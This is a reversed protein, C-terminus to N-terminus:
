PETGDAVRLYRVKRNRVRDLGTFENRSQFQLEFTAFPVTPASPQKGDILTYRRKLNTGDFLWEGGHAHSEGPATRRAASALERFHGDAALVLVRRIQVGDDEYDRLWTGVLRQRTGEASADDPPSDCASALAAALIAVLCGRRSLLSARM